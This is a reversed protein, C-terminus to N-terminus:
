RQVALAAVWIWQAGRRYELRAPAPTAATWDWDHLGLTQGATAAQLLYHRQHDLWLAPRHTDDRNRGIVQAPRRNILAMRRRDRDVAFGDALVELGRSYVTDLVARGFGLPGSPDFAPRRARSREGLRWTAATRRGDRWRVQADLVIPRPTWAADARALIADAGELWAQAATPALLGSLLVTRRTAQLSPRGAARSDAAPDFGSM